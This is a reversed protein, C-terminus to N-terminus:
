VLPVIPRPTTPFTVQRPPPLPGPNGAPKALSRSLTYAAAVGAAVLAADRAPVVHSDILSAGVVAVVQLIAVYFEPRKWGRELDQQYKRVGALIAYVVTTGTTILLTAQTSFGTTVQATWTGAVVALVAALRAVIWSLAAM